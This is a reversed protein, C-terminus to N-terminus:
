SCLDLQRGAQKNSLKNMIMTASTIHRFASTQNTHFIARISTKTTGYTVTLNQSTLTLTWPWFWWILFRGTVIAEGFKATRSFYNQCLISTHKVIVTVIAEGFKATRSFYNQCLINTHKKVVNFIVAQCHNVSESHKKYAVAYMISYRTYAVGNGDTQTDTQWVCAKHCFPQICWRFEKV